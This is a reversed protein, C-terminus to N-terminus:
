EGEAEAVIVFTSKLTTSCIRTSNQSFWFHSFSLLAFRVFFFFQLQEPYFLNPIDGWVNQTPDVGQIFGQKGSHMVYTSLEIIACTCMCYTWQIAVAIIQADWINHLESVRWNHSYCIIASCTGATRIYNLLDNTPGNIWM